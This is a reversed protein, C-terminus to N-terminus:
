YGMKLAREAFTLAVSHANCINLKLKIHQHGARYGMRYTPRRITHLM